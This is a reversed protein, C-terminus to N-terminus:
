YCEGSVAISLAANGDDHRGPIASGWGLAFWFFASEFVLDELPATNTLAPEETITPVEGM